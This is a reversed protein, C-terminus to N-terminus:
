RCHGIQRLITKTQALYNSKSYKAVLQLSIGQRLLDAPNL